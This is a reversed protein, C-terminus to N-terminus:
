RSGGSRSSTAARAPGDRPPRRQRLRRLDRRRRARGRRAGKVSRDVLGTRPGAHRRRDKLGYIEGTTTVLFVTGDHPMAASKVDGSSSCRGSSPPSALSWKTVHTQKMADRSIFYVFGAEVASPRRQHARGGRRAARHAQGARRDRPGRRPGLRRRLRPLGRQGQRRAAHRLEDAGGDSLAQYPGWRKQHSAVVVCYLNRPREATLVDAGALALDLTLHGRAENGGTRRAAKGTAADFFTLGDGTPLVVTADDGDRPAVVGSARVGREATSRWRRSPRAARM